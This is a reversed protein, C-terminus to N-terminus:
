GVIDVWGDMELDWFSLVAALLSKWFIFGGLVLESSSVSIESSVEVLGWSARKMVKVWGVEAGWIMSRRAIKFRFRFRGARGWDVGRCSWREM